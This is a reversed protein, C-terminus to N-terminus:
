LQKGISQGVGGFLHNRGASMKQSVVICDRKAGSLIKCSEPTRLFAAHHHYAHHLDRHGAVNVSVKSRVRLSSPVYCLRLKIQSCFEVGLEDPDHCTAQAITVM